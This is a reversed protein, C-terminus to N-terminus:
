REQSNTLMNVSRVPSAAAKRNVGGTTVHLTSSRVHLPRTRPDLRPPLPQHTTTQLQLFTSILTPDEATWTGHDSLYQNEPYDVTSKM